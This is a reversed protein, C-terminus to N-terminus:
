SRKKAFKSFRGLLPKEKKPRIEVLAAVPPIFVCVSSRSGDLTLEYLINIKSCIGLFV